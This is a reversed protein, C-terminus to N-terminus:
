RVPATWSRKEPHCRESCARAAARRTSKRRMVFHIAPLRLYRLLELPELTRLNIAAVLLAARARSYRKM